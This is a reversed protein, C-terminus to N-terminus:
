LQEQTGRYLLDQELLKTFIDQTTEHHNDTLTTTFLDFSIGFREWAELIKPHYRDIFRRHRSARATPRWPSLHETATPVPCWSSM